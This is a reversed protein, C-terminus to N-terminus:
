LTCIEDEYDYDSSDGDHNRESKDINTRNAIKLRTILNLMAKSRNVKPMTNGADIKSASANSNKSMRTM